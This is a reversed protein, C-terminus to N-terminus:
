KFTSRLSKAQLGTTMWTTCQGAKDLIGLGCCCPQLRGHAFAAKSLAGLAHYSLTWMCSYSVQLCRAIKAKNKLLGCCLTSGQPAATFGVQVDLVSPRFGAIQDGVLLQDIVTNGLREGALYPLRPLLLLGDESKDLELEEELVVDGLPFDYYTM